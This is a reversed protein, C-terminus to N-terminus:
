RSTPKADTSEPRSESDPPSARPGELMLQEFDRRRTAAAKRFANSAHFQVTRPAIGCIRAIDRYSCHQLILRAVALEKATLHLARLRSEVPDCSPAALPERAAREGDIIQLIGLGVLAVTGALISAVISSTSADPVPPWGLALGCACGMLLLAVLFCGLAVCRARTPTASHRRRFQHSPHQAFFDTFRSGHPHNSNKM